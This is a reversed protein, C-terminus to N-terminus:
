RGIGIMIGEGVLNSKGTKKVFFRENKAENKKKKEIESFGSKNM